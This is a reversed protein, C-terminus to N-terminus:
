QGWAPKVYREDRSCAADYKVTMLSISSCFNEVSLMGTKVRLGCIDSCM